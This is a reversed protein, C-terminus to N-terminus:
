RYKRYLSSVPDPESFIPKIIINWKSDDWFFEVYTGEGFNSNQRMEKPIVVRGLDDIKRVLGTHIM